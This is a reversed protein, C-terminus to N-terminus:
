VKIASRVSHSIRHLMLPEDALGEDTARRAGDWTGYDDVILVGNRVLNPYLVDFGVKTSGYFDTDLRLLSIQQPIPGNRLTEEVPGAIMEYTGPRVGCHAINEQVDQFFNEMRPGKVLGGKSAVYDTAGEPFGEFTDYLFVKREPIGFHDRALAAFISAGGLLVGCEVIDGPINRQAIYRISCYINYFGIAQLVSFPRAIEYLEWFADECELDPYTERKRSPADDKGPRIDNVTKM